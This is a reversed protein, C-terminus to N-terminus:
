RYTHKLSFMKKLAHSSKADSKANRSKPVVAVGKSRGANQVRSARRKDVRDLVERGADDHIDM